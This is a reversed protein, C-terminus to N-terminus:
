PIEKWANTRLREAVTAWDYASSSNKGDKYVWMGCQTTDNWHFVPEGDKYLRSRFRRIRPAEERARLDALQASLDISPSGSVAGQASGHGCGSVVPDM